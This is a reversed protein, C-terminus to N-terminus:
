EVETIKFEVNKIYTYNGAIGTTLIKIRNPELNEVIQMVSKVKNGDDDIFIIELQFNKIEDTNNKMKSTITTIGEDFIKTIYSFTIDDLVVNTNAENNEIITNSQEKPKNKNVIFIVLLVVIIAVIISIILIKKKNNIM